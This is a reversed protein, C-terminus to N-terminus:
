FYSLFKIMEDVDYDTITHWFTDNKESFILSSVKSRVSLKHLRPQTEVRAKM